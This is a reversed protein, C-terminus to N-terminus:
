EDDVAELGDVRFGGGYGVLKVLEIEGVFWSESAVTMIREPYHQAMGYKDNFRVKDGVKFKKM